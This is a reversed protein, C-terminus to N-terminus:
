NKIPRRGKRKSGYELGKLSNVEEEPIEPIFLSKPIKKNITRPIYNEKFNKIQKILDQNTYKNLDLKHTAGNNNM